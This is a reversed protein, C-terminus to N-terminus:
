VTGLSVFTALFGGLVVLWAQIGGEPYWQQTGGHIQDVEQDAASVTDGTSPLHIADM